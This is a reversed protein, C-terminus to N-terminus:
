VLIQQEPSDGTITSLDGPFYRKELSKWAFWTAILTLIGALFFAIGPFHVASSSSTGYAFLSNMLVPGIISTVSMLSTLGGQLEGQANNPVQSSMIGQMAPGAIGGLCYPVLFIFMMWGQTAFSFLFLGLAYFLLGIYVSKKQGFKPILVRILGGQVIAILLGVFGLSYGVQQTTWNFKYLTYFSWNSQVSHAAIYTLVLSIVLGSVVPYERLKKLSGIPNARKWDFERRNQPELSEPLVFFGYILNILTFFASVIFPARSGFGASLGGIVPGIIFGLGFAVGIMGFNQAKKEPTSIDAIYSAAATFSAGTIGAIIRGVFLWAITPAWAMVLYDLGLGLLSFLIVPRRGYKDSLGGLISSFIFQMTAFSFLLWGSYRSAESLNKGTLERILDPLVPIIVGIGIVDILITIFIFTLAKNANSIM